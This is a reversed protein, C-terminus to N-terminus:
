CMFLLVFFFDEDGKENDIGYEAATRMIKYKCDDIAYMWIHAHMDIIKM